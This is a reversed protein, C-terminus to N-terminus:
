GAHNRVVRSSFKKRRESLPADAITVVAVGFGVVVLVGASLLFALLGTAAVGAFAGALTDAGLLVVLGLLM